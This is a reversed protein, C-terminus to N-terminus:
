FLFSITGLLAGIGAGGLLDIPYHFGSVFRLYGLAVGLIFVPLALWLSLSCLSVGIAFACATHRSPFTPSYKEKKVIPEIPEDAIFPRPILITMRTLTVVVFTIAPPLCVSFLTLLPSGFLGIAILILGALYVLGILITVIFDLAILVKEANKHKRLYATHKEYFAPYNKM